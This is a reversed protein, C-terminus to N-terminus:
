TASPEVMEVYSAMVWMQVVEKGELNTMIDIVAQIDSLGKAASVQKIVTQWEKCRADYVDGCLARLSSRASYFKHSISVLQESM